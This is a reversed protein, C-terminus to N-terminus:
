QFQDRTKSQRSWVGVAKRKASWEAQAYRSLNTHPVRDDARALGELLLQENLTSGDPLEVHALIRGFPDRTQHSELWLLVTVGTTASATLSTAETAWPEAEATLRAPEPCNVGLLVVQTVSREQVADPLNVEITDGDIVRHIATQVGHYAMLDDYQRVLLWGRQDAFIAAVLLAM